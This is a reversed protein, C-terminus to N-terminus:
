LSAKYAQALWALLEADVQDANTLRVRHTMMQNWSGAAELRDTPEVGPLKLGVDFREPTSPQLMAFQAKTGFGVLTNKPLVKVDGFGSIEGALRDYVPRWHAKRDPFLADIKDDATEKPTGASLFHSTLASAHGHGFGHEDKLWAVLEKHSQLGTSRMQSKWEAITRGHKAEISPFYTAPGKQLEAM